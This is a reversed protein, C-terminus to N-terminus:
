TKYLTQLFDTLFHELYLASIFHQLVSLRVSLHVSPHVSLQLNKFPPYFMYGVSKLTAPYLFANHKIVPLITFNIFQMTLKGIDFHGKCHYLATFCWWRLMFISSQKASARVIISPKIEYSLTNFWEQLELRLNPGYFM